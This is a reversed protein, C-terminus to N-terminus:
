LEQGEDTVEAEIDELLECLTNAKVGFGRKKTRGAQQEHLLIRLWRRSRNLLEHCFDVRKNLAQFLRVDVFIPPKSM